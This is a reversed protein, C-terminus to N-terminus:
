KVQDILKLISQKDVDFYIYDRIAVNSYVMQETRKEPQKVEAVESCEKIAEIRAENIADVFSDKHTMRLNNIQFQTFYEEATKM